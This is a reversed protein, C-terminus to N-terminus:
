VRDLVVISEDDTQRAGARFAAVADFVARACEAPSARSCRDVVEHLRAAGFMEGAPNAADTLGDTYLVMREGPAFTHCFEVPQFLEVGLLLNRPGWPLTSCKHRDCLLPTPHGANAFFGVGSPLDLVAYFLSCSVVSGTREGLGVLMRNLEDVMAAPRTLNAPGSRLHGMLKAMLMAARVGHGVADGLEPSVM